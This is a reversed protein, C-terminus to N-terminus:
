LTCINIRVKNIDQFSDQSDVKVVKLILNTKVSVWKNDKNIGGLTIHYNTSFPLLYSHDVRGFTEM